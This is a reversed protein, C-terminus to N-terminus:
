SRSRLEQVESTLKLIQDSLIALADNNQQKEEITETYADYSLVMRCKACFKSDPKNPETCNPCEKSKLKNIEEGAPRLGFAELISESSENGFYHLYKNPMSSGLTWGAHQRLVHEKLMKSKQTLASHRRIYPNWPKKLLESIKSKDELPVAANELLAPFVKEKYHQYIDYIAYRSLRRGMSRGLGCIFPANPNARQPHDDLWDKLFPISNILPIHRSGTKGNVLVEAYQKEGAMKFVLDKIRLSLIEHPRCSTDGSIMHYCRDRKSSCYKLFLLDDGPTWLDSPKYVSKEKRRLTPINAIVEPKHRMSPEKDRYYYWKFFRLFSVLRQNYTAVWRHMPDISEPKRLSDLYHLIDDRTMEKFRKNKLFQSLLKLSTINTRRHNDSLNTEIKMALIYSSIVLANDKSIRTKLHELYYPELGATALELKQDFLPNDIQEIAKSVQQNQGKSKPIDTTVNTGTSILSRSLLSKNM